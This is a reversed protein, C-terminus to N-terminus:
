QGHLCGLWTYTTRLDIESLLLRSCGVVSRMLGVQTSLVMSIIPPRSRLVLIASSVGLKAQNIDPAHMCRVLPQDHQEKIGQNQSAYTLSMVQRESCSMAVNTTRSATM